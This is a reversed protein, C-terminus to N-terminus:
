DSSPARITKAIEFSDHFGDWEMDRGMMELDAVRKAFKYPYLDGGQRAKGSIDERGFDNEASGRAGGTLKRHAPPKRERAAVNMAAGGVRADM